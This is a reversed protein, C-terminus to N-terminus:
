QLDRVLGFDLKNEAVIVKFDSIDTLFPSLREDSLINNGETILNFSPMVILEMNKYQGILFCKYTEKREHHKLTIAPHEHGIIIQKANHFDKPIEHGHCIYTQNILHHDKISINRKNAIPGLITDHNGKILILDRDQALNDILKLTDRWEQDSIEGFEHKIDGNVIITKPKKALIPKLRKFVDDLQFRPLLIGKKNMAEEYGIHFDSIICTDDIFVALDVLNMSKHIM